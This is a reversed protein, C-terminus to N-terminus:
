ETAADLATQFAVTHGSWTFKTCKCGPVMCRGHGVIGAHQTTVENSVSADGEHSCSCVSKAGKYGMAIQMKSAMIDELKTEDASAM